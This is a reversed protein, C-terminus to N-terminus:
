DIGCVATNDYPHWECDDGLYQDDCDHYSCSTNTTRAAGEGDASGQGLEESDGVISLKRYTRKTGWIKGPKGVNPGVKPVIDIYAAEGMGCKESGGACVQKKKSFVGNYRHVADDRGASYYGTSYDFISYLATM